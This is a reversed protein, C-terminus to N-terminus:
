IRLNTEGIRVIGLIRIMWIAFRPTMLSRKPSAYVGIGM